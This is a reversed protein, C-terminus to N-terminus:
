CGSTTGPNGSIFVFEGEQLPTSRWRLHNPTSAPRNNEYLRVYSVDFCYRPFNFNDPDGGFFAADCSRPSSLACM